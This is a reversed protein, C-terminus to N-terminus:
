QISHKKIMSYFNMLLISNLFTYIPNFSIDNRKKYFM